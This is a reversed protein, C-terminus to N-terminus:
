LKPPAEIAKTSKRRKHWSYFCFAVGIEMLQFITFFSFGIFLDVTGGFEAIFNQIEYAKVQENTTTKLDDYYIHIRAFNSQAYSYTTNTDIFWDDMIYEEFYQESPPFSSSAVEADWELYECPEPCDELTINGKSIQEEIFAECILLEGYSCTYNSNESKNSWFPAFQTPGETPTTLADWWPTTYDEEETDRKNRDHDAEERKGDEKGAWKKGEYHKPVTDWFKTQRRKREQSDTGKTDGDDGAKIREIIEDLIEQKDQDRMRSFFFWPMCSCKTAYLEIRQRQLCERVTEYHPNTDNGYKSYASPVNRCTGWRSGLRKAKKASIKFFTETGPQVLFGGQDIMVTEDHSRLFVKFGQTRTSFLYDDLNATADITFGASDSYYTQYFKRDDNIELCRGLQTMGQLRNWESSGILNGNGAFKYDYEGVFTGYLENAYKYDISGVFEEFESVFKYDDLKKLNSPDRGQAVRKEIQTVIYKFQGTDGYATLDPELATYNIFNTSCITIAPLVLKSTWTTSATNFSEYAFYDSLLAYVMYVTLAGLLAVLVWWLIRCWRPRANERLVQVYDSALDQFGFLFPDDSPATAPRLDKSTTGDKEGKKTWPFLKLIVM